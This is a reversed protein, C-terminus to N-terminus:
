KQNVDDELLGLKQAQLIDKEHELYFKHDQLQSLKFSKTGAETQSPNPNSGAGVTPNNPAGKLYSKAELLATVAEEVGTVGTDDTQEIKSRDLLKAVVEPDAAGQKMAEAQIASNVTMDKLQQRAAEAETKHKTALEEWKKEKELREEEAKSQQAELEEAKKAKESLTKFRSHQYLRNDSFIKEFDQDTIKSPDFGTQEGETTKAPDTGATPQPTASPDAPPQEAM